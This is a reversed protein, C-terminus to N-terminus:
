ASEKSPTADADLVESALPYMEEISAIGDEEELVARVREFLEKSLLVFAQGTQPDRLEPPWGARRIERRQQETLDIM